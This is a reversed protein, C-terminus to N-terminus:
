KELHSSNEIKIIGTIINEKNDSYIRALHEYTNSKISFKYEYLSSGEIISLCSNLTNIADVKQGLIVYAQAIVNHIDAFLERYTHKVDMRQCYTAWENELPRLEDLVHQAEVATNLRTNAYVVGYVFEYIEQETM